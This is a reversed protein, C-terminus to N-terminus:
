RSIIAPSTIIAILIDILLPRILFKLTRALVFACIFITLFDEALSGPRRITLSANVGVVDSGAKHLKTTHGSIRANQNEFVCTTFPRKRKLSAHRLVDREGRRICAKANVGNDVGDVFGLCRYDDAVFIGDARKSVEERFDRAYLIDNPSRVVLEFARRSSRTDFDGLNEGRRVWVGTNKRKFIQQLETLFIWSIM